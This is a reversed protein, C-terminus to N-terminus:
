GEALSRIEQTRAFLRERLPGFRPDARLPDLAPCLDVWVLDTLGRDIARALIAIAHETTGFQANAEVALQHFFTVRRSSGADPAVSQFDGVEFPRKEEIAKGLAQIFRPFEAATGTLQGIWGSIAARAEYFADLNGRWVNLRLEMVAIGIRDITQATAATKLLSMAEDWRGILALVRVRERRTMASAPDLGAAFDLSRLAADIPGTESLVRGVLQHAEALSPAREIAAAAFRYADLIRGEQLAVSGAALHAEGLEPATALARRAADAAAPGHSSSFFSLRALALAHGAILLPADPARALALEYCRVSEIVGERWFERYSARARLYLDIAVPDTLKRDPPPAKVAVAQAIAQAADENVDLLQATTVDFRSAWLQIGDEVGILRVTLRLRGDPLRRLSGQVVVEVGIERGVARADPNAGALKAVSALAAVRLGQMTSLADILDETVGDALYGEEGLGVNSLPLVALRVGRMSPAHPIVPHPLGPTPTLSAPALSLAPSSGTATQSLLAAEIQAASPYRDEPARALCRSIIQALGEPLDPRLSRPDPAVQTLRAAAVALSTKGEFPPTGVALEYLMVGLAYIDTRADLARSGDVQEPAMYHPTGVFATTESGGTAPDVSSAIGFDTIAIRGGKAVLVNDPKLDRHVVGEDHAAALGRCVAIAVSILADVSLRGSRELRDRLSEGEVLEMTFFRRGDHEALEFVRAVNKHTVKRALKVERRFRELDVPSLVEARLVKLAVDEDLERDRARYVTGMGGSGILGKIEWRGALVERTALDMTTHAQAPVSGVLTVATSTAVTEAFAKDDRSM